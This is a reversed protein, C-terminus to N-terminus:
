WFRSHDQIISYHRIHVENGISDSPFTIYSSCEFLKEWVLTSGDILQHVQVYLKLVISQCIGFRIGSRCFRIYRSCVTRSYMHAIGLKYGYNGCHSQWNYSPLLTSMTWKIPYCLQGFPLLTSSYVNLDITIPIKTYALNIRSQQCFQSGNIKWSLCYSASNHYEFAKYYRKQPLM